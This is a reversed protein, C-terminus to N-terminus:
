AVKEEMLITFQEDFVNALRTVEDQHLSGLAVRIM